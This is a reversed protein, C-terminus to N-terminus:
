WGGSCGIMMLGVQLTRWQAEDRAITEVRRLISAQKTLTQLPLSSPSPSLVPPPYRLTSPHRHHTAPPTYQRSRLAELLCGVRACAGAASRTSPRAAHPPTLPGAPAAVRLTALGLPMGVVFALRLSRM